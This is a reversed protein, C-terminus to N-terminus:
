QTAEWGGGLAKYINVLSLLTKGELQVLNNQSELWSMQGDVVNNFATLGTKYLDVSMQMASHSEKVVKQQLEISQLNYQYQTIANDVEEIANMVTFNYEDVAAELQLKAEATRYNRALGDFLTWSLQPAISWSMSHAGFLNGAKHAYTGIDGTISLTPLFDKKAVGIQAALQGLNMEAEVIDPRRRLLDAPVGTSITSAHEPFEKPEMLWHALEGPYVGCLICISNALTRIQAKLAPLSSQTSYLVTQAQTVDLKNGLEAEFRSKTIEVVRKQSEIHANAVALQKQATRLQIYADAVEACLSVMVANYDARSVKFAEKQVKVNQTIRGFVDLEWNMTAGLGFVSSQSAPVVKPGQAGSSQSKTWGATLDITPFYGSQAERISKEAMKIRKIAANVNYNNEVAKNIVATLTTDCFSEWWADETPFNQTKEPTMQWTAPVTDRLWIGPSSAHSSLVFASLFFLILKFKM